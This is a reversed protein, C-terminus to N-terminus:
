ILVFISALLLVFIAALNACNVTLSELFFEEWSGSFIPEFIFSSLIFFGFTFLCNSSITSSAIFVSRRKLSAIDSASLTNASHPFCSARGGTALCAARPTLLDCVMSWVMPLRGSVDPTPRSETLYGGERPERRMDVGRFAVM